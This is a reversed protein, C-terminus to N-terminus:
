LVTRLILYTVYLIYCVIFIWGDKKTLKGNISLVFALIAAFMMVALDIIIQSGITLPTIVSCIGIIFLANFINSGIVNGLAIENEGKKAAVLSTVLEPLSTGVAVITLGVLSEVLDHNWGAADGIGMAIAKAGNVVLEGGVVIGALGLILFLIAKWLSMEKIPTESSNETPLLKAQKKSKLVLYTEYAVILVCLIIGEWRLVAFSGGLSFCLIFVSLIASVAILVPYETKIIDKKVIIPTIAVSCGLVLLINCINSGVVNGIAINANGGNILCAISDSASVALEPMSTGFAVVTLGIVLPPIKLKRAFFSASDVFIDSCKVLLLVGGAIMIIALLYNYWQTMNLNIVM